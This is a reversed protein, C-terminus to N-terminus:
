KQLFMKKAASFGDAELRYLYLGSPQNHANWKVNYSGQAQFGDVLVAVVQSLINYVMLKAHSKKALSYNITTTPNFPNPYNQYLKFEKPITQDLAYNTVGTM